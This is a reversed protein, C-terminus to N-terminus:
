KICHAITRSKVHERIHNSSRSNWSLKYWEIKSLSLYQPGILNDFHVRVSHLYNFLTSFHKTQQQKVVISKACFHYSTLSSYTSMQILFSNRLSCMYDPGGHEQVQHIASRRNIWEKIRTTLRRIMDKISWFWHCVIEEFRSILSYISPPYKNTEKMGLIKRVGMFLILSSKIRNSEIEKIENKRDQFLGM